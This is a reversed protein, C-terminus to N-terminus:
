GPVPADHLLLGRAKLASWLEPPIASHYNSVNAKVIDRSTAGPIVATVAPHALPFQLAAEQLSVGFEACTDSIRQTKQLIDVSAQAYNYLAGPVPGTALIGSAYPSGIVISIGRRQCDLFERRLPSQDLLTYPMAVLLFDLDFREVFYSMEVKDNIGAGIARVGGFARLDRLAPWGSTELDTRHRAKEASSHHKSDLDHIVLSDVRNLGLRMLSDEYSRYIGAATYDFHLQFCLGGVWPAPSFASRNVPCKYVRGVKTSVIFSQRDRHWLNRGIRHESLGHGYWPATDFLTIGQSLAENVTEDAQQETLIEFLDGLPAGGLGLATTKLSTRGVTRLELPRSAPSHPMLRRKLDTIQSTSSLM